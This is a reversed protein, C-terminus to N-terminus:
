QVFIARSRKSIKSYIVAAAILKMADGPIFPLVGISVATVPDMRWACVLWLAGFLYVVLNGIIFSVLVSFNRELMTGIIYSGAIFGLFYGATPGCVAMWGAVAFHGIMSLSGLRRGLVAGSLLVFFTQMTIPIPTGPVPIRVYAGLLAAFMFFAVGVLSVTRKDTIIDKNYDIIKETAM